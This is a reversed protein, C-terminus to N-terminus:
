ERRESILHFVLDHGHHHQMAEEGHSDGFRKDSQQEGKYGTGHDRDGM